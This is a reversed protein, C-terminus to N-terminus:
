VTLIGGEQLKDLFEQIDERAISEEVDYERLIGQVLDELTVDEKLMNWLYVGIENVTILGNFRSVMKGTPIIIYDGAIERLVFDKEIRM